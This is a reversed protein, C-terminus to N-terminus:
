AVIEATAVALFDQAEPSLLPALTRRVQRHYDNLYAVEERTLATLDALAPNIPILTLTQFHLFGKHSAVIEVQNEIRIGFRGEAYYGPEITITMGRELDFPNVGKSFRQPHEHVSLFHGVGHGTGHDYDLGMDWLPRRAFADLQHGRTGEPFNATMLSIFGKLVATYARKVEDDVPGLATTRTADTTGNRYQGGSDLLYVGTSTIPTDTEPSSSYHCMAANGSSASISGFSPEVFNARQRRYALIVDQAELETIPKGAAERVPGERHLWALFEVWAVGDEIHADRFGSMETDNKIAKITTIPSTRAVVAGGAAEVALRTAVSAFAPDILVARGVAREGLRALLAGPELRTVGDDEFAARDNPLKRDDVFWEVAGDSGLLLFSHPLPTYLVDSGRVNLLWAINDPQTEVLLDAGVDALAAAVRQRKEASAEGAQTVPFAEIRGLPPAPQDAWIADIPDDELPVLEADADLMAGVLRDYLDGPVLMPNVGFHQGSRANTRLWDQIPADYFHAIEFHDVDVQSRVAVQYRGDVFIIARDATVLAIGASGTFGSVYALREDRPAVNEGQHADFRPIIVGALGRGATWARLAVLRENSWSSSNQQM